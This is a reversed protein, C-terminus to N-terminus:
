SLCVRRFTRYSHDSQPIQIIPFTLFARFLCVSGESYRYVGDPETQGNRFMKKRNGHALEPRHIFIALRLASAQEQRFHTNRPYHKRTSSPCRGRCIQSFQAGNRTSSSLNTFGCVTPCPSAGASFMDFYKGFVATFNM